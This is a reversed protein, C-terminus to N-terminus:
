SSNTLLCPSIMVALISLILLPVINRDTPFESPIRGRDSCTFLSDKLTPSRMLTYTISTLFAVLPGWINRELDCGPKTLLNNSSSTGSIASPVTSILPTARSAPELVLIATYECSSFTSGTPAHTPLLPLLTWFITSSSNPSFISIMTHSSSGAIRILLTSLGASTSPTYM